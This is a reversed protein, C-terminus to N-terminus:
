YEISNTDGGFDTDAYEGAITLYPTMGMFADAAGNDTTGTKGAWGAYGKMYTQTNTATGGGVCHSETHNGVPCKAADMAADAIQSDIAQNCQPKGVDLANGSFDTISVVPTPACYKGEADVAAYAAAMELPFTPTVGLTFSDFYPKNDYDPFQLGLKVAVTAAKAAGSSPDGNTSMRDELPVFYGNVSHGFANWM